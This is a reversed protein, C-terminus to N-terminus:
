ESPTNGPLDDLRATGVARSKRVRRVPRSSVSPEAFGRGDFHYRNPGGADIFPTRIDAYPTRLDMFEDPAGIAIDVRPNDKDDFRLAVIGTIQDDDHFVIGKLSDLLAKLRNDLDGSKRARHVRAHIYLPGDIPKIGGCILKVHDKYERGESSILVIARRKIGKGTVVSRYYHNVSPPMPLTALIM